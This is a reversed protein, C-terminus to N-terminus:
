LLIIGVALLIGVGDAVLDRYSFVHPPGSRLDYLEKSVGVAASTGISLPLAQAESLHGKNVAVYQTGLTWLFSFALHQAKDFGLWPDDAQPDLPAGVPATEAAARAGAPIGSFTSFERLGSLAFARLEAPSRPAASPGDGGFISVQLGGWLPSGPARSAFWTTRGDASAAVAWDLRIMGGRFGEAGVLSRSVAPHSPAQLWLGSAARAADAAGAPSVCAAVLM